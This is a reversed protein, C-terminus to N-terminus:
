GKWNQVLVCILILFVAIVICAGVICASTEQDETAIAPPEYKAMVTKELEELEQDSCEDFEQDSYECTDCGEAGNCSPFPATDCIKKNEKARIYDLVIQGKNIPM